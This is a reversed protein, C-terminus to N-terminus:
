RRRDYGGGRDGYRGYGGRGGEGGRGRYRDNNGGWRDEDRGGGGYRDRDRGGGGGYRDGGGWRDGGGGGGGGGGYRDRGGDRDNYNNNRGGDDYRPRDYPGSRRDNRDNRMPGGSRGGGGGRRDGRGGRRDRGGGGDRRGRGAGAGGYGRGGGGRDNSGGEEQLKRKVEDFNRPPWNVEPPAPKESVGELSELFDDKAKQRDAKSMKKGSMNGSEFDFPVLEYYYESKYISLVTALDKADDLSRPLKIKRSHEPPLTPFNMYLLYMGSLCLGFLTILLVSNFIYGFVGGKSRGRGMQGGNMGSRYERKPLPSRPTVNLRPSRRSLM